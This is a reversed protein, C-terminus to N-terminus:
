MSNVETTQDFPCYHASTTNNFINMSAPSLSLWSCALFRLQSVTEITCETAAFMAGIVAFNKAYSVSRRGMEQLVLKTTPTQTGVVDTMPDISATFIGFVGGVVFGTRFFSLVTVYIIKLFGNCYVNYFLM